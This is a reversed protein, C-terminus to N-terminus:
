NFFIFFYVPFRGVDFLAAKALPQALDLIPGDGALTVPARWQRHPLAGLAVFSLHNTRDFFQLRVARHKVAVEHHAVALRLSVRAANDRARHRTLIM